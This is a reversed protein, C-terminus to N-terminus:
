QYSVFWPRPQVETYTREPTFTPQDEDIFNKWAMFFSPSLGERLVNWTDFKQEASGHGDAHLVYSLEPHDTRINERDPFMGVQFQHLVFAKQPLNNARTLEALWDAVVNIEEARASGVRSLPQEGPNLKWEADLALGVNPRKLLEEYLKAQALFDGQGPQLDLVAYGGAATIADIWPVVAEVPAENSYDGDDGPSNSAVTVIIEFAPIVPQEELQQYRQAYDKATQAAAQPDQEGMMGLEPAFPHGYLAVMRRGPFVLGGGGPLEGNDALDVLTSYRQAGGWQAGLAITDQESVTRMSQASSRPDPADLVEVEAGASRATAAAALSTQATALMPPLVLEVPRAPALVAVAAVDGEPSPSAVPETKAVAEDDGPVEVVREAGLRAIEADVAQATADSRVLMPAGLSSAIAAARLQDQRSPSAVVVAESSGFLRRSVEVGSGDADSIVEPGNTELRVPEGAGEEQQACAPLTLALAACLAGAAIRVPPTSTSM